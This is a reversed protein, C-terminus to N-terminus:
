YIKMQVVILKIKLTLKFYQLVYTLVDIFYLKEM